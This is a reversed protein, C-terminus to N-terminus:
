ARQKSCGPLPQSSQPPHRLTSQQLFYPLPNREWRSAISNRSDRVKGRPEHVPDIELTSNPLETYGFSDGASNGPGVEKESEGSCKGIKACGAGHDVKRVLGTECCLSIKRADVRSNGEREQIACQVNLDRVARDHQAEETSQVPPHFKAPQATVFPIPPQYQSSRRDENRPWGQCHAWSKRQQHLPKAKSPKPIGVNLRSSM